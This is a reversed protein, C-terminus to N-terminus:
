QDHLVGESHIPLSFTFRSGKGDGESEVWIRGSHMEVISKTLPLGLGTGPTKDSLSSRVQYFEGFIREQDGPALGIGTDEVSVNLMEGKKWCRVDISGGDPTFKAANSLLNFMVQKLKREDAMLHLGKLEESCHTNLSIGHVLAKEKIMVLSGEILDMIKINSLDLEMKGAEIKSLDLIDNILSLLHQGSEHIDTVYEAQKENLKGFYQEGLVQSFGIVANLPTRLEHSMSALFESKSQNAAKAGRVAVELERTREEIRGELDVNLAKVQEYLGRIEEEAKKRESIDRTIAVFGTAEGSADRLVSVGMEGPFESGDQRLLTYEVNEESGTELTKGMALAARERDREAILEFANTGMVEERSGFGYLQLAKENIELTNGDLDVVSIGDTAGEFVARLEEESQRITGEAKKRQILENQLEGTKEGVQKRLSRNWTLIGAIVIIVVGLSGLVPIWFEKRALLSEQELRVWKKYIAQREEESIQALGKELIRNLEPWDNRSAFSLKIAYGTDGAIRLNTIGEKDIYYTATALQTVFADVTGFSVDRLGTQVDPVEVLDMEPYDYTIMEYDAYGAVVAVKMSSIKELTLTGQINKEVIIASPFDIYPFTFLMYESRQPTRTAASLMDIQRSQAKGIVEDWTELHVIEFYIGLRQSILEIYDAAVGRFEGNEDFYEIPPYYPDPALRIVPHAAIWEREQASLPTSGDEVEDRSCGFPSAVLLFLVAAIWIWKAHKM